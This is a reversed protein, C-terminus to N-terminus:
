EAAALFKDAETKGGLEVELEKIWQDVLLGIHDHLAEMQGKQGEGLGHLHEEKQKKM